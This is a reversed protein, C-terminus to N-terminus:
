APGTSVGRRTILSWRARPLRVDRSGPGWDNWGTEARGGQAVPASEFSSLFVHLDTGKLVADDHLADLFLLLGLAADDDGVRGLLLRGLPLHDGHALALDALVPLELREVHLGAVADEEALVGAGLDLDVAFLGQDHALVVDEAHDLLSNGGCFPASFM